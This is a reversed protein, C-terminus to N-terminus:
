IEGCVGPEAVIQAVVDQWPLVGIVKGGYEADVVRWFVEDSCMVKSPITHKYAAFAGFVSGRCDPSTGAGVHCAAEFQAFTPNGPAFDDGAFAPSAALVAALAIAAFTKMM